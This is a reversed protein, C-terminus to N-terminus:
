VNVLEVHTNIQFGSTATNAVLGGHLDDLGLVRVVAKQDLQVLEQRSSCVRFEASGHQLAKM